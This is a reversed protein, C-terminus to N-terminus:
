AAIPALITESRLYVWALVFGGVANEPAAAHIVLHYAAFVIGSIAITWRPGLSAVLGACLGLRYITEEYLPTTLCATGLLVVSPHLEAPTRLGSRRLVFSAVFIAPGLVVAAIAIDRGVRLWQAASGVRLGLTRGQDGLESNVIAFILLTAMGLT